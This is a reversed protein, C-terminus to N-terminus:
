GCIEPYDEIKRVIRDFAGEGLTSALAEEYGARYYEYMVSPVYIHGKNKGTEPDYLFASEDFATFDIVCVTETTRLILTELSTCGYFAQVGISTAKHLDVSKLATCGGGVVELGFLHDNINTVNPLVISTLSTCNAFASDGIITPDVLTCIMDGDTGGGGSGGSAFGEIEIDHEMEHGELHLTLTQGTTIEALTKEGYKIKAM